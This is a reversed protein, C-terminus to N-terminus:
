GRRKREASIASELDAPTNVNISDDPDIPVVVTDEPLLQAAAVGAAGARLRQAASRLVEYRYVALLPNPDGNDCAAAAAGAATEKLAVVLQELATTSLLPLDAALVFVKDAGGAEALGALVAPVPGGGPTSETTFVVGPATTPRVPGVVVLRSCLPEAAALVRDLLSAEGVRLVMKDIGGLRSAAGGALIICAKVTM